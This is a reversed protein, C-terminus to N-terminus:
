LRIWDDQRILYACFGNFIWCKVHQKSKVRPKHVWCWTHATSPQRNFLNQDVSLPPSWYDLIMGQALPSTSFSAQLHGISSSIPKYRLSPYHYATQFRSSVHRSERSLAVKVYHSDNLLRRAFGPSNLTHTSAQNWSDCILLELFDQLVATGSLGFSKSNELDIRRGTAMDYTARKARSVLYRGLDLSIHYSRFM